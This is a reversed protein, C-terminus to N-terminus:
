KKEGEEEEKEGEEEEKEDIVEVEDVGEEIPKELEEEVNEPASVMAVNLEPDHMVEVKEPINLDKIQIVDDFTKLESIDIKIDHPLDEPLAKVLIESISKILTGEFDKVAVSEGTFILPIETEVKEKLNPHYFDIHTIKGTIPHTQIDYILVASTKKGDEISLSVLSSEGAEKFVSMFEKENVCIPTSEQNDGYLIAPIMGEERLERASKEGKAKTLLKIMKSKKLIFVFLLAIERLLM